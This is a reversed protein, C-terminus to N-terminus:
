LFVDGVEGFPKNLLEILEELIIGTSTPDVSYTTMYKLYFQAHDAVRIVLWERNDRVLELYVSGTTAFRKQYIIWDTESIIVEIRTCIKEIDIFL